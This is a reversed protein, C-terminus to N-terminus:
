RVVHPKRVLMSGAVSSIQVHPHLINASCKGTTWCTSLHIIPWWWNRAVHLLTLYPSETTSKSPLTKGDAYIVQRRIIPNGIFQIPRPLPRPKSYRIRWWHTQRCQLFGCLIRGSRLALNWIRSRGSIFIEINPASFAGPLWQVSGRHAKSPFLFM